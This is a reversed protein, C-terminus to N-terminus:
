KRCNSEAYGDLQLVRPGSFHEVASVTQV